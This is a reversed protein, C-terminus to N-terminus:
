AKFIIDYIECACEIARRMEKDAIEGRDNFHTVIKYIEIRKGGEPTLDNYVRIDYGLDYVTLKLAKASHLMQINSFYDFPNEKCSEVKKFSSCPYWFDIAANKLKVKLENDECKINEITYYKDTDICLYNDGNVCTVVDGIKFNSM